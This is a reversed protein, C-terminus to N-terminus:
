VRASDTRTEVNGAMLQPIFSNVLNINDKSKRAMKELWHCFSADDQFDCYDRKFDSFTFPRELNLDQLVAQPVM